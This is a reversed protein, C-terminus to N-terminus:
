QAIITVITGIGANAIMVMGTSMDLLPTVVNTTAMAETVM